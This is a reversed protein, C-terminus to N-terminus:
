RVVLDKGPRIEIEYSTSRDTTAMGAREYLRTAGTLNDADVHLVVSHRGRRTFEDFATALLAQAIGRGRWEKRVGLVAIYGTDSSTGYSNLATMMAVVQGDAEVLWVLENEWLDSARWLSWEDHRDQAPRDIWGFHDRFAENQADALPEIRDDDMLTRITVGDPFEIPDLAHDLDITMENFYRAAHYGHAELVQGAVEKAERSSGTSIVRVGDPARVLDADALRVIWATLASGIGRNMHDPHVWVRAHSVIHPDPNEYMAGGVLSGSGPARVEIFQTGDEELLTAVLSELVTTRAGFHVQQATILETLEATGEPPGAAVEYGDIAPLETDM